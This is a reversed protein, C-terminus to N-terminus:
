PLELPGQEYYEAARMRFFGGDDDASYSMRDNGNIPEPDTVGDGAADSADTAGDAGRGFLFALVGARRYSDINARTPDYLLWEVKNDQFHNWSNDVARMITNGYPIQWVVVRRGTAMVLDEVWRAHWAFDEEDWWSAGGDGYVVEKFGAD